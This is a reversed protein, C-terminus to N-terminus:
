VRIRYDNAPELDTPITWDYSTANGVDGHLVIDDQPTDWGEKTLHVGTNNFGGEWTITYTGGM